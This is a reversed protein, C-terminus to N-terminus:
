REQSDPIDSGRKDETMQGRMKAEKSLMKNTAIEIEDQANAYSRGKQRTRDEENFVKLFEKKADTTSFIQLVKCFIATTKSYM